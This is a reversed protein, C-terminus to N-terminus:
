SRVLPLSNAHESNIELLAEAFNLVKYEGKPTEFWTCAYDGPETKRVVTMLPGGSKLLVVDGPNFAM